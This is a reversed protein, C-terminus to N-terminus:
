EIVLVRADLDSLYFEFEDTRYVPNLPAATAAAAVCLFAAAMEPGNDLVIAVRDNRGIGQGNLAARTEDALRRLAQYNLPVGGPATLAPADPAGADLLAVVTSASTSM